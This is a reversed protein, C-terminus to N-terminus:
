QGSWRRSRSLQDESLWCQKGWHQMQWCQSPPTSGFPSFWSTSWVQCPRRRPSQCCLYCTTNWKLQIWSCWQVHGHSTRGLLNDPMRWLSPIHELCNHSAGATSVAVLNGTSSLGSCLLINGMSSWISFSKKLNLSSTLPCRYMISSLGVKMYM